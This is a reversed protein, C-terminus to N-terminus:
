AVVVIRSQRRWHALIYRLNRESFAICGATPHRPKRWVHLFIASGAGRVVPCSNFDTQGIISYLRDGRRLNEHSFPHQRARLGKNYHIDEPDDSWISNLHVPGALVRGKPRAGKDMRYMIGTLHWIGVPTINDGEGAKRGIGGRGISCPYTRGCFRAGRRSVVLDCARSMM